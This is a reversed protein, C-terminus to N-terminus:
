NYILSIYISMSTIDAPSQRTDLFTLQQKKREKKLSAKLHSITKGQYLTVSHRIQGSTVRYPQHFTFLRSSVKKKKEANQLVEKKEVAEQPMNQLHPLLHCHSKVWLWLCTTFLSLIGWPREVSINWRHLSTGELPPTRPSEGYSFSGANYLHWKATNESHQKESSKALDEEILVRRRLTKTRKLM